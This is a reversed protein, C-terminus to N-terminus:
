QIVGAAQPAKTNNKLSLSNILLRSGFWKMPPVSVRVTWARVEGPGATFYHILNLCSYGGLIIRELQSQYGTVKAYENQEQTSM